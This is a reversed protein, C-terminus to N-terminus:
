QSLVAQSRILMNFASRLTPRTTSTATAPEVRQTDCLPKVFSGFQSCVEDLPLFKDVINFTGERSKVVNCQTLHYQQLSGAYQEFTGITGVRLREFLQLFSISDNVSAVTWPIVPRGEVSM